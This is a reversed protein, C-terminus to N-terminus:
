SDITMWNSLVLEMYDRPYRGITQIWKFIRFFYIRPNYKNKSNQTSREMPKLYEMNIFFFNDSIDLYSTSLDSYLFGQM